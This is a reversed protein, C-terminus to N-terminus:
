SSCAARRGSMCARASGPGTLAVKSAIVVHSLDPTAGVFHVQGGFQTGPATDAETVLPLYTGTPTM